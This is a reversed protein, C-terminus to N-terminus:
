DVASLQLDMLCSNHVSVTVWGLVLMAWHQKVGTFLCISM